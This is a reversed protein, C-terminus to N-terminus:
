YDHKNVEVIEIFQIQGNNLEVYIARYSKNLRISRQGLRNGYLPEDHYGSVKRVELIGSHNIAEVWLTLKMVIHQPLKTIQKKAKPSLLVDFTNQM